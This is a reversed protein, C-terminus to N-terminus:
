KKIPDKLLGWLIRDSYEGHKHYCMGLFTECNRHIMGLEPYSDLLPYDAWHERRSEQYVPCLQAIKLSRSTAVKATIMKKLNLTLAPKRTAPGGAGGATTEDAGIIKLSGTLLCLSVLRLFFRM